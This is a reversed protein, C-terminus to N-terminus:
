YSEGSLTSFESCSGCVSIDMMDNYRRLSEPVCPYNIDFFSCDGRCPVLLFIIAKKIDEDQITISKKTLGTM